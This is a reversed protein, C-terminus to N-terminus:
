RLFLARRVNEPEVGHLAAVRRYVWPNLRGGEPKLIAEIEARDLGGLLPEGWSDLREAALQGLIAGVRDDADHRAMRKIRLALRMMAHYGIQLTVWEPAALAGTVVADLTALRSEVLEMPLEDLERLAGPFRLALAKMRARPDRSSGTAHEDRLRKIERYKERLAALTALTAPHPPLM